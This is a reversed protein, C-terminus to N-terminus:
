VIPVLGLRGRASPDQVMGHLVSQPKVSYLIPTGHLMGIRLNTDCLAKLEPLLSATPSSIQLRVNGSSKIMAISRAYDGYVTEVGYLGELADQVLAVLVPKGSEQRLLEVTSNILDFDTRVDGKLHTSNASVRQDAKKGEYSIVTLNDKLTASSVNPLMAEVDTRSAGLFPVYVVKHGCNIFNSFVTRFTLHLVESPVDNNVELLNLSGQKFGGGLISDMAVVGSSHTGRRPSQIPEGVADSRESYKSFNFPPLYRFKGSDLTFLFRSQEISVGRLKRLEIERVVRGEHFKRRLVVVGDLLYDLDTQERRETVVVFRAEYDEVLKSIEEVGLTHSEFFLGEWSDLVVFPNSIQELYQRLGSIARIGDMRRSDQFGIQEEELRPVTGYKGQVVEIWPQHSKLTKASLRTSMYISKFESKSHYDLLQLVLSTKGTGPDGRILVSRGGANFFDLLYTSAVELSAASQSM